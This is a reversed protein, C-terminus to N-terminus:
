KKVSVDCRRVQARTPHNTTGDNRRKTKAKEQGAVLKHMEVDEVASAKIQLSCLVRINLKMARTYAISFSSSCSVFLFLRTRFASPDEHSFCHVDLIDRCEYLFDGVTPFGMERAPILKGM